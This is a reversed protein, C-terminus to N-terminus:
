LARKEPESLDIDPKWDYLTDTWMYGHQSPCGGLGDRRGEWGNLEGLALHPFMESRIQLARFPVDPWQPEVKSIHGLESDHARGPYQGGDWAQKYECLVVEMTYWDVTDSLEAELDNKSIVARDNALQCLVATNGGNLAAEVDPHLKALMERPSWGGHPRIDPFPPGVVGVRQLAEYTKITAYRGNGQITMLERWVRDADSEAHIRGSRVVCWEAYNILHEALKVPTRIARRERRMSIGPWAEKVWRRLGDPDNLVSAANPWYHFLVEGTPVNYPALYCGIMWAKDAPSWDPEIIGECVIRMHPDPGGVAREYRTFDALFRLHTEASATM